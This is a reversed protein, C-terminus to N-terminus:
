QSNTEKKENRLNLIRLLDLFICVKIYFVLSIQMLRDSITTCKSRRLFFGGGGKEQTTMETRTQMYIQLLPTM